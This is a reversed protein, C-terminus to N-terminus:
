HNWYLRVLYQPKVQQSQRPEGRILCVHWSPQYNEYLSSTYKCLVHYLAILCPTHAFFWSFWSCLTLQRDNAAKTTLSDSTDIPSTNIPSRARSPITTNHHSVGLLRYAVIGKLLGQMCSPPNYRGFIQM